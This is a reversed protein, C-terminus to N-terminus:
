PKDKAIAADIAAREEDLPLPPEDEWDIEHGLLIRKAITGDEIGEADDTDNERYYWNQPEGSVTDWQGAAAGECEWHHGHAYFRLGIRLRAADQKFYLAQEIAQDRDQELVKAREALARVHAARSSLARVSFEEALALLEESLTM